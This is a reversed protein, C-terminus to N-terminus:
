APVTEPQTERNLEDLVRLLEGDDSIDAMSNAYHSYRIRGAKDVVLEAPMRGLKVLNVEQGYLKAVAHRYDSLGLYPLHEREWYRKFSHPGEPGICLIVADRKEFEPYDHRLQAM